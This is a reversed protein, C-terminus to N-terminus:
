GDKEVENLTHRIDQLVEENTKEKERDEPTKAVGPQTPDREKEM